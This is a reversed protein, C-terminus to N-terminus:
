LVTSTAAMVDCRRCHRLEGDGLNVCRCPQNAIENRAKQLKDKLEAIRAKDKEREADVESAVYVATEDKVLRPKLWFETSIYIKQMRFGEKM